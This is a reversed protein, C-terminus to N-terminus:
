FGLYDSHWLTHVRKGLYENYDDIKMIPWSITYFEDFM